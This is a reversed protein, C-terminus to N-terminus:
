FGVASKLEELKTTVQKVTIEDSRDVVYWGKTQWEAVTLDDVARNKLLKDLTAKTLKPEPAPPTCIDLIGLREFEERPLQFIYRSPPRSLQYKQGFSGLTETVDETLMAQALNTKADAEQMELLRKQNQIEHLKDAWLQSQSM